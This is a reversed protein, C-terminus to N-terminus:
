ELALITSTPCLSVVVIMDMLYRTDFRAGLAQVQACCTQVAGPQFFLHFLLCYSWVEHGKGKYGARFTAPFKHYVQSFGAPEQV